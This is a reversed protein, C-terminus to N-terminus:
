MAVIEDDTTKATPAIGREAAIRRYGAVVARGAAAQAAGALTGPQDPRSRPETMPRLHTVILAAAGLAAIVAIEILVRGYDIHESYGGPVSGNGPGSFLFGYGLDRDISMHQFRASLVWPPFLMAFAMMGVMVLLVYLRVRQMPISLVPPVFAKAFGVVHDRLARVCQSVTVGPRTNAQRIVFAVLAIGAFTPIAEWGVSYGVVALAGLALWAMVFKRM